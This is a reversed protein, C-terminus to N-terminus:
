PEFVSENKMGPREQYELGTKTSWGILETLQFSVKM